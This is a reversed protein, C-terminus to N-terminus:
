ARAASAPLLLQVVRKCPTVSVPIGGFHKTKFHYETGRGPIFADINNNIISSVLFPVAGTCCTVKGRWEKSTTEM